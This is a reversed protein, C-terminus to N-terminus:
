VGAAYAVTLRQPKKTPQGVGANQEQEYAEAFNSEFLRQVAEMAAAADKGDVTFTFRSEYGAALCLLGLISRADARHGSCEVVVGCDFPKLRRIMMAAPRLHLGRISRLVFSRRLANTPRTEPMASKLLMEKM